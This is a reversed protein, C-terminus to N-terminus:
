RPLAEFRAFLEDVRADIETTDEGEAYLRAAEACAAEIQDGLAARERELRRQRTAYPQGPRVASPAGSEYTGDHEARTPADEVRWAALYTEQGGPFRALFVGDHVLASLVEVTTGVPYTKSTFRVETSTKTTKSM